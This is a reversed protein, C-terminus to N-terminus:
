EARDIGDHVAVRLPPRDDHELVVLADGLHAGRQRQREVADDRHEVAPARTRLDGLGRRAIELALDGDLHDNADGLLEVLREVEFPGAEFRREGGHAELERVGPNARRGM